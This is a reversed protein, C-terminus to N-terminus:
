LIVIKDKVIILENEKRDVILFSEPPIGFVIVLCIERYVFTM